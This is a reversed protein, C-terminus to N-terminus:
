FHRLSDGQTPEPVPELDPLRDANRELSRSVIDRSGLGVALALTLVIGGFLIGFALDVIAGGIQLHGLAMAATLVLVLWKIGLSLFRAYQLRANVSGILVSRELFRAVLNGVCMIIIAGICRTLFPLFIVSVRANASFATDFASVGISIGLIVFAWFVIRGVLLTPSHGPSWDSVAATNERALREDFRIRKLIGRLVWSALIGLAGLVLVALLFALLGPLFTALKLLVRSVSQQLAMWIQQGM